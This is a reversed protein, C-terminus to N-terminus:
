IEISPMQSKVRISHFLILSILHVTVQIPRVPSPMDYAPMVLVLRFHVSADNIILKQCSYYVLDVQCQDFMAAGLISFDNAHYLASVKIVYNSISIVTVRFCRIM